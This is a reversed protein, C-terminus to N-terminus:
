KSLLDSNEFLQSYKNYSWYIAYVPALPDKTQKFVLFWKM